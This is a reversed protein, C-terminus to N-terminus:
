FFGAPTHEPSERGNHHHTTDGAIRNRLIGLSGVECEVVDGPQIWRDIEMGSGDGLTGSAFFEGPRLTEDRSAYALLEEFSFLMNATTATARLEGNVRVQAQLSQVDAIEDATVIWPGMANATDFSKGKSPGLKLEMDRLVQERASYDNFVTYGFIHAGAHRADLNRGGRGVVMGVELEYDLLGSYRPCEIQADPGVVNFRNTFYFAPQQYYLPDLRAAPASPAQAAGGAAKSRMDAVRARSQLMHKEYVSFCRIQRPEPLPALLKVSALPLVPLGQRTVQAQLERALDLGPADAAILDQMSRLIPSARAHLREHTSQLDLVTQQLPDVIGLRATSADQFTCLKM